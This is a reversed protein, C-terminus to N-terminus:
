GGEIRPLGRIAEHYETVIRNLIAAAPMIEDVLGASQGAEVKGDTVDHPSNRL